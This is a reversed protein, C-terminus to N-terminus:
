NFTHLKIKLGSDAQKKFIHTAIGGFKTPQGKDDKGSALWKAAGYVLEGDGGAEIMELKHNKVGGSFLGAFFKEVGASGEIVDHTAPLLYANETYFAAVAKADGSNFAADWASYADKVQKEFADASTKMKEERYGSL